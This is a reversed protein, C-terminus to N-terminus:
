FGLWFLLATAVIAVVWVGYAGLLSWWVDAATTRKPKPDVGYSLVPREHRPKM